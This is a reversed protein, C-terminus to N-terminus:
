SKDECPPSLCHGCVDHHRKRVRGKESVTRVCVINVSFGGNMGKGERRERRRAMEELWDLDKQSLRVVEEPEVLKIASGLLLSMHKELKALTKRQGEKDENELTTGGGASGDGAGSGSAEPDDPFLSLESNLNRSLVSDVFPQLKLPFFDKPASALFPFTLVFQRFVFRLFPIDRV